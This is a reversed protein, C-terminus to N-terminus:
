LNITKMAKAVELLASKLATLSEKNFKEKPPNVGERKGQEFAERLILSSSGGNNPTRPIEELAKALSDQIGKMENSISTLSETNVLKGDMEDMRMMLNKIDMECKKLRKNMEEMTVKEEVEISEVVESSNITDKIETPVDINEEESKPLKIEEGKIKDSDEVESEKSDLEVSVQVQIVTEDVIETESKDLEGVVDDEKDPRPILTAGTMYKLLDDDKFGFNKGKLANQVASPNSPVACGSLELLEHRVYERGYPNRNNGDKNDDEIPNWKMPIFGVSSANIIKENYLDLIMDAFPYLGKTPFQLLFEMCAPDKKRTVRLARALPVSGYNHAWLFVPNKKYNDLDWGSLRIIDGDRDKTEDTGKMSLTRKTMDVSKVVGSYDSSFIEKGQYKVPVGDQGKLQTAM